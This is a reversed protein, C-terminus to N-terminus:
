HRDTYLDILKYVKGFGTTDARQKEIYIKATGTRLATKPIEQSQAM